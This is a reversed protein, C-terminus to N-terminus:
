GPVRLPHSAPPTARASPPDTARTQGVLPQPPPLQWRSVIQLLFTELPKALPGMALTLCAAFSGAPPASARKNVGASSASTCHSPGIRMAGVRLQPDGALLHPLPHLLQLLLCAQAATVAALLRRVIAEGLRRNRLLIGLPCPCAALPPRGPPWGPWGPAVSDWVSCGSWM